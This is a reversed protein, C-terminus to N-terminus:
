NLGTEKKNRSSNSKENFNTLIIIRGYIQDYYWSDVSITAKQM